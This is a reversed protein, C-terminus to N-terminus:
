EDELWNYDFVDSSTTKKKKYRERAKEIDGLSKYGKKKWDLVIKEIYRLNSVGNYTAERLAEKVLDMSTNDNVWGKIIEYEMPSLTRGFEKEFLSFIDAEEKKKVGVRNTGTLLITRMKEYFLDTSIFEEMKKSNGNKEMVIALINKSVLGNIIELVRMKNIGTGRSIYDPDYLVRPGMNIIFILVWAEDCSIGLRGINRFVSSPIFFMKDRLLEMYREEM